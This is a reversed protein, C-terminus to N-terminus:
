ADRPSPSTYLLCRKKTEFGYKEGDDLPYVDFRRTPKAKRHGVAPDFVPLYSEAPFAPPQVPLYENLADGPQPPQTLALDPSMNVRENHGPKPTTIATTEPVSDSIALTPTPSSPQIQLTPSPDAFTPNPIPASSQM